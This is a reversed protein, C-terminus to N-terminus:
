EHDDDSVQKRAEERRLFLTKGDPRTEYHKSVTM